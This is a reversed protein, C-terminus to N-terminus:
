FHITSEVLLVLPLRVAYMGCRGLRVKYQTFNKAHVLVFGRVAILTYLLTSLMLWLVLLFFFFLLYFIKRFPFILM